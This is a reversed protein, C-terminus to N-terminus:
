HGDINMNIAWQLNDKMENRRRISVEEDLDDETSADHDLVIEAQDKQNRFSSRNMGHELKSSLQDDGDDAICSVNTAHWNPVLSWSM